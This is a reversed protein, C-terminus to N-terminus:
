DVTKSFDLTKAVIEAIKVSTFKDSISSKVEFNYISKLDLDNRSLISDIEVLLRRGLDFNEEWSINDVIDKNKYLNISFSNERIEIEIKNM